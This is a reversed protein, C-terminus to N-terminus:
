KGPISGNVLEYGIYGKVTIIKDDYQLQKEVIKQVTNDNDNETCGSFMAVLLYLTLGIILLKKMIRVEVNYM